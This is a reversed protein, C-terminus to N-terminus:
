FPIGDYWDDDDEPASTPTPENFRFQNSEFMYAVDEFHILGIHDAERCETELVELIRDAQEQSGYREENEWLTITSHFAIKFREAQEKRYKQFLEKTHNLNDM